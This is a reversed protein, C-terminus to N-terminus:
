RKGITILRKMSSLKQQKMWFSGIINLILWFLSWSARLSMSFIYWLCSSLYFISLLRLYCHMFFGFSFCDKQVATNRFWYHFAVVTAKITVVSNWCVLRFTNLIPELLTMVKNFESISSLNLSCALMDVIINPIAPVQPEKPAKQTNDLNLLLVIKIKPYIHM